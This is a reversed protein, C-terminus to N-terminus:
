IYYACKAADRAKSWRGAENRAQALSLNVIVHATGLLSDANKRNCTSASSYQGDQLTDPTTNDTLAERTKLILDDIQGSPISGTVEIDESLNEALREVVKITQKNSRQADNQAKNAWIALSASVVSLALFLSAVRRARATQKKEIENQERRLDNQDVGLLGAVIKVIATTQGDGGPRLDAAFPDLEKLAPPFCEEHARGNPEGGVIIAFIRRERGLSKFYKIEENVWPSSMAAAPSCVVVMAASRDLRDRVAEHLSASVGMVTRDRCVPRLDKPVPGFESWNGQLKKPVKYNNLANELWEGWTKDDHCYSVFVKYKFDEWIKRDTVSKSLDPTHGTGFIRLM